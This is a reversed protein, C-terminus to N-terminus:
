INFAQQRNKIDDAIASAKKKLNKDKSRSEYAEYFEQAKKLRNPILNDFSNIALEYASELRYYLVLETFKSGPYDVLYNSFSKIAPKYLERHHYQKAVKYYKKELKFRLAATYKNARELFKGEPYDNIFKQLKDLGTFTEKQDLTYRNSLEYISKAEKFLAEEKKDSKSYLKAFREFKYQAIYFDELKYYTDAEYFLVREAQPKGRYAPVIQEFLRLARKYDGGKYFTEAARYKEALEGKRLLQQYESCSVMLLLGFFLCVGRKFQSLYM